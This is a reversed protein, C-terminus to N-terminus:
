KKKNRVIVDWIGREVVQGTTLKIVLKFKPLGFVATVTGMKGSNRLQVKDGVVADPKKQKASKM